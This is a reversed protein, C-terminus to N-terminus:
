MYTCAHTCDCMCTFMCVRVSEIIMRLARTLEYKEMTAYYSVRDRERWGQTMEIYRVMEGGWGGSAGLNKELGARPGRSM